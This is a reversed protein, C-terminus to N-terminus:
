WESIEVQECGEEVAQTIAQVDDAKLMGAFRLLKNGPVGKPSSPVLAQAFDLVRLQLKPPMHNLQEIIKQKIASEM